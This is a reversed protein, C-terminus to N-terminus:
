QVGGLAPEFYPAHADTDGRDQETGSRDGDVESQETTREPIESRVPCKQMRVADEQIANAVFQWPQVSPAFPTRISTSRSKNGHPSNNQSPIERRGSRSSYL